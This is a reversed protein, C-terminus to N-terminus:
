ITELASTPLWTEQGEATRIRTTDGRQQLVEVVQGKSLSADAQTEQAALAKSDGIIALNRQEAHRINVLVAGIGAVAIATTFAVSKWPIRYGLLRFAIAVWLACWLAVMVFLLQPPSFRSKIWDVLVIAFGSLLKPVSTTEGASSGKTLRQEAERLNIQAPRLTPDVKLARYYNAIAKPTEGQELYANGLNSYLRANTVGADVLLQYKEAAAAFKQKSDAVDSQQKALAVSYLDNAESLITKQQSETLNLAAGASFQRIAPSDEKEAAVAGQAIFLAATTAIAALLTSTTSGIRLSKAPSSTPKATSRTPVARPRASAIKLDDIWQQADCKLQDLTHRPAGDAVSSHASCEHLLRELTTALDRLGAIRLAGIATEAHPSHISLKCHKAAVRLLASEIEGTDCAAAVQKKSRNYLSDFWNSHTALSERSRYLALGVVILPPAAFLALLASLNPMWPSEHTLLDDGVFNALTSATAPTASGQDSGPPSNAKSDGHVIGDLALMDAPDVQIAATASHVTNFKGTTPDFYSFPISPIETVGARLPRISTSFIKRDGKVFGALPANPVKFNKSLEPDEALPPAQVLEMPGTGSIGILVNIPDGAKVHTPSADVAIQYKGVAGRYDAPQGATPIALVNIPEVDARVILPRVSQVVLQTAFPSFSNDDDLGAPRGGPFPFDKLLSAMPDRARGLATPYDVVIKVGDADIKGPRKPYITASVQYLYYSHEVGDRDKRLVEKGGPRQGQDVLEQLRETFPGWESRDSILRWMDSASLTINAKRDIYPRLWIKLTLDIAQGVYIERQKGAIEVFALDGTESKSAVFFLPDTSQDTGDIRVSIAPLSFRGSKQPTLEFTFTQTTTTETRGNITTIQTSRTPPGVSKIILGDIAPIIPPEIQKGNAVFISLTIPQGVYSERTSLSARVYAARVTLSISSVLLLAAISLTTRLNRKM